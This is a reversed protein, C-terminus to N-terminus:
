LVAQSSQALSRRLMSAGPRLGSAPRTSTSSVSITQRLLFSGTIPPPPRLWRPLISTTPATSTSSLPRPGPRMRRLWTASKRGGAKMGKESAIERRTGSGLGITPGSIGSGGADGVIGMDDALHGRVDDQRPGVPDKGVELDPGQADIMPQAAFVELGVEIFEDKAEVAPAGPM